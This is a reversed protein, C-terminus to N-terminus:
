GALSARRRLVAELARADGVHRADLPHWLAQRNQARRELVAMKEPTGPPATTPDPLPVNGYCDAVGRRAFKSTIPYQNRIGPTYYCGWCLGRPRNVRAKSCHRCIPVM